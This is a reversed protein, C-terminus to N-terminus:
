REYKAVSGSCKMSRLRIERRIDTLSGGNAGNTAPYELPLIEPGDRHGDFVVEYEVGEVAVTRSAWRRVRRPATRAIRTSEGLIM